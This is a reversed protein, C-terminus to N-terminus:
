AKFHRARFGFHSANLLDKEELHRRVIKLIVKEFLKAMSFM